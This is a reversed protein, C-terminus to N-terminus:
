DSQGVVSKKLHNFLRPYTIAVRNYLSASLDFLNSDTSLASRIAEDKVVIMRLQCERESELSDSQRALEHLENMVGLVSTSTEAFSGNVAQDSLLWSRAITSLSSIVILSILLQRLMYPHEKHYLCDNLGSCRFM